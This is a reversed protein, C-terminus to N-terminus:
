VMRRRALPLLEGSKLTVEGETSFKISSKNVLYKRHIRSFSNSSAFMAEFSKLTYSSHFRTGDKFYIFTYNTDARLYAINDPNKIVTKM